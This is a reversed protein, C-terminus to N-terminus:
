HHFRDRDGGARSGRQPAGFAGHFHGEKTDKGRLFKEVSAVIKVSDGLVAGVGFAAQEVRPLGVFGFHEVGFDVGLAHADGRAHLFVGQAFLPAREAGNDTM